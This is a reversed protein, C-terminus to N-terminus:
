GVEARRGCGIPDVCGPTEGDGSRCGCGPCADSSVGAWARLIAADMTAADAFHYVFVDGRSEIELAGDCLRVDYGDAVLLRLAEIATM